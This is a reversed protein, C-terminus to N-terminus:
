LKKPPTLLFIYKGKYPKQQNNKIYNRIINFNPLNLARAAERMSNYSILTKEELDFVEIVQSTPQADSIKKRTEDSRHRGKKADSLKKRTEESPNTLADSIKRRTEETHNQGFMPHNKGTMADSIKKITDDHLTKGYNPHKNGKKAESMIIKSEDSHQRGSMPPLTPDNIINYKAGLDIYYKERVLLKDPECYELIEISFDKLGYKIIASCIYSKGQQLASNIKSASYYFLLRKSLDLASGVYRKGNILNTFRYIGAKNKNDKLIKAKDAEANSYSKIPIIAALLFTDSFSHQGATISLESYINLLKTIQNSIFMYVLDSSSILFIQGILIFLIIFAFELFRFKELMKIINKLFIELYSGTYQTLLFSSMKRGTAGMSKQSRRPYYVTLLM